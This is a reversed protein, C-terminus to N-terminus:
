SPKRDSNKSLDILPYKGTLAALAVNKLEGVDLSRKTAVSLMMEALRLRAVNAVTEANRFNHAIENWALDFAQRMADIVAPPYNAGEILKRAEM